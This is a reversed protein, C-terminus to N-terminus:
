NLCNESPNEDRYVKIALSENLKYVLGDEGSDSIIKTKRPIIIESM